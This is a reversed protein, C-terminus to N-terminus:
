DRGRPPRAGSSVMFASWSAAVARASTAGRLPMRAASSLVGVIWFRSALMLTGEVASVRRSQRSSSNVQGPMPSVTLPTIRNSSVSRCSADSPRRRASTSDDCPTSGPMLTSVPAFASAPEGSSFSVSPRSPRRSRKCSYRSSPARKVFHRPTIM